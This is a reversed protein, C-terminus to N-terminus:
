GALKWSFCRRNRSTSVVHNYRELMTMVEKMRDATRICRPGRQLLATANVEGGEARIFELVKEAEDVVPDTQAEGVIRLYEGMYFEALIVGAQVHSLSIRSINIDDLLALVGAIRLAHEAAKSAWGYIPALSGGPGNRREVDDHFGVYLDKADDSLFLHRPELGYIPNEHKPPEHHLIAEMRAVYERYETTTSVDVHRYLRTGRLSEPWAILCRPLFGQTHAINQGFLVRAVDPQMMLHATVRRGYAVVTGEGARVKVGGDGDWLKSMASLTKLLNDKNM